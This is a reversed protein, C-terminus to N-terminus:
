LSENRTFNLKKIIILSMNLYQFIGGLLSVLFDIKQPSTVFLILFMLLLEPFLNLVMVLLQM